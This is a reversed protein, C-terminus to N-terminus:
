AQSVKFFNTQIISTSRLTGFFLEAIHPQRGSVAYDETNLFLIISVNYAPKSAHFDYVDASNFREFHKLRSAQKCLNSIAALHVAQHLMSWLISYNTVSHNWHLSIFQQYIRVGKARASVAKLLCKYDFVAPQTRRYGWSSASLM